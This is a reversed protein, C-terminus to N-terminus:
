EVFGSFNAGTKGGAGLFGTMFSVIHHVLELTRLIATCRGINTVGSVCDHCSTLLMAVGGATDMRMEVDVM